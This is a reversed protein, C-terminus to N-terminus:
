RCGQCCRHLILVIEEKFIKFQWSLWRPRSANNSPYISMNQLLVFLFSCCCCLSQTLSSVSITLKQGFCYVEVPFFKFFVSFFICSMYPQICLSLHPPPISCILHLVQNGPAQSWLLVMPAPGPCQLHLHSALYPATHWAETSTCM